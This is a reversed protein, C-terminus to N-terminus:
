ARDPYFGVAKCAAGLYTGTSGIAYGDWVSQQFVPVVLNAGAKYGTPAAGTWQITVTRVKQGRARRGARLRIPVGESYGGSPYANATGGLSLEKTEPQAYCPWIKGDNSQYKALEFNGQSM